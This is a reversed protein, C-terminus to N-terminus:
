IVNTLIIVWPYVCSRYVSVSPTRHELWDNFYHCVCQILLHVRRELIYSTKTLWQCAHIYIDKLTYTLLLFRSGINQFVPLLICHRLYTTCVDPPCKVHNQSVVFAYHCLLNFIHALQISNCISWGDPHIPGVRIGLDDIQGVYYMIYIIFCIDNSVKSAM